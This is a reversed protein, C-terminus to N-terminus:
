FSFNARFGLVLADELEGTAGPDSIRQVSPQLIFEDNWLFEYAVEIVTEATREPLDDSVEAHSLGLAFADSDRNPILGTYNLGIQFSHSIESRDQRAFGTRAFLSLGQDRRDSYVMQEGSIYLGQNGSHDPGGSLAAFKASHYWAGLKYTGPLNENVSYGIEGIMMAGQGNGLEWHLGHPNVTDDGEPSDFTDGDFIAVQSYLSENPEWLFRIGLAPIYFTPGSNKVNMSIFEPWGFTSNFFPEAVDITCFEEDALLFGARVGLSPNAFSKEIWSEYLRASGYGEMGSVGMLDGVRNAIGSGHLQLASVRISTSEWGLMQGLDADLGLSVLGNYGTGTHDGGSVNSMIETSYDLYPDIGQDNGLTTFKSAHAGTALLILTLLATNKNM